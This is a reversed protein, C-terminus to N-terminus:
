GARRFRLSPALLVDVDTLHTCTQSGGGVGPLNRVGTNETRQFTRRNARRQRIAFVPFRNCNGRQRAVTLSFVAATWQSCDRSPRRYFGSARALQWSGIALRQEHMRVRLALLGAYVTWRLGKRTFLLITIRASQAENNSETQKEAANAVSSLTLTM